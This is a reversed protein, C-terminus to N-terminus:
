TFDFQLVHEAKQTMDYSRSSPSTVEVVLTPNTLMTRKEDAFISEGCVVSLDPYVYKTDSIKVRMESPYGRCSTGSLKQYLFGSIAMMILAHNETGGSMAYIEGDIYEHKIESTQEFALYEEVTWKHNIHNSAM